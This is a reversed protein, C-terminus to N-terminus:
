IVFCHSVLPGYGYKPIFIDYVVQTHCDGIMVCFSHGTDESRSMSLVLGSFYTSRDYMIGRFQVFILNIM